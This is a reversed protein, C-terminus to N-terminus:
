TKQKVELIKLVKKAEERAEEFSNPFYDVLKHFYQNMHEFDKAVEDETFELVKKYYDIATTYESKRDYMEGLALYLLPNNPALEIGRNLLEKAKDYEKKEGYMFSIIGLVYIDKDNLELAKLYYDKAKSFSAAASSKMFLGMMQQMMANKIYADGSVIYNRYDKPFREVLQDILDLNGSNFIINIIEEHNREYDMAEICCITKSECHEYEDQDLILKELNNLARTQACGMLSVLITIIGAVTGFKSLYNKM